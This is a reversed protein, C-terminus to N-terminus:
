CGAGILLHAAARCAHFSELSAEVSVLPNLYHRHNWLLVYATPSVYQPISLTPM